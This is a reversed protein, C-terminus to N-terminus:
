GAPPSGGSQYAERARAVSGAAGARKALLASRSLGGRPSASRVSLAPSAPRGAPAGRPAEGAELRLKPVAPPRGQRDGSLRGARGVWRAVSGVLQRPSGAWGRAGGGAGPSGPPILTPTADDEGGGAGPTSAPSGSEGAGRPGAPSGPEPLEVPASPGGVSAEELRGPAGAAAAAAAPTGPPLPQESARRAPGPSGSRLASRRLSGGPPGPSASRGREAGRGGDARRRWGAAPSPAGAAGGGPGGPGEPDVLAGGRGAVGRLRAEVAGRALGGRACLEGLLWQRERGLALGERRLAENEARLHEAAARLHEAEMFRDVGQALRSLFGRQRRDAPSAAGPGARAAGGGAGPAALHSELLGALRPGHRRLMGLVAEPRHELLLELVREFHTADAMRGAQAARAAGLRGLRERARGARYWAVARVLLAAAAWAGLLALVPGSAALRAVVPERSLDGWRLALRLAVGCALSGATLNV